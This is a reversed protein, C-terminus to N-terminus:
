IFGFRSLSVRPIHRCDTAAGDGIRARDHSQDQATVAAVLLASAALSESSSRRSQNNKKIGHDIGRLNM